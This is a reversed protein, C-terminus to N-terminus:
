RAAGGVGARNGYSVAAGSRCALCEGSCVFSHQSGLATFSDTHLKKLLLLVIRGATNKMGVGMESVLTM